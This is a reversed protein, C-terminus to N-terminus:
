VDAARKRHKIKGSRYNKLLSKTDNIVKTICKELGGIRRYVQHFRPNWWYPNELGGIRRYVPLFIHLWFVPIELGGIRRYVATVFGRQPTKRELGGIRRLVIKILHPATTHTKLGGIRRLVTFWIAGQRIFVANMAIKRSKGLFKLLAHPQLPATWGRPPQNTVREM